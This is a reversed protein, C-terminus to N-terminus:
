RDPGPDTPRPAVRELWAFFAPNLAEYYARVPRHGVRAFVRHWTRAAEQAAASAEGMWPPAPERLLTDVAAYLRGKELQFEDMAIPPEIDHEGLPQDAPDTQGFDAPRAHGQRVVGGAPDITLRADPPFLRPGRPPAGLWPILMIEIVPRGELWAPVPHSPMPDPSMDLSERIAPLRMMIEAVSLFESM